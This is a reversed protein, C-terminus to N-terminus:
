AGIKRFVFCNTGTRNYGPCAGGAPIMMIITKLKESVRDKEMCGAHKIVLNINEEPEINLQL